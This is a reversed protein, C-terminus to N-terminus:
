SSCLMERCDRMPKIVVPVPAPAFLRVQTEVVSEESRTAPRHDETKSDLVEQGPMTVRFMLPGVEILDGHEMQMEGGRLLRRNLYVGNGNSDDRLFVGGDRTVIACHQWQIEKSAPRLHCTPDRGILFESVRIPIQRGNHVGGLVLLNVPM